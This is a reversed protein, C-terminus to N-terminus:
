GVIGGAGADGVRFEGSKDFFKGGSGEKDEVLGVVFEDRFRGGGDAPDPFSLRHDDEAGKRFHLAEGTEADAVAKGPGINGRDQLFGPLGEVGRGGGLRGREGGQGVGLMDAFGDGQCIRSPFAQLGEEVFM